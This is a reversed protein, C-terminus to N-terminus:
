LYEVLRIYYFCMFISMVLCYLALIYNGNVYLAYCICLKPFFGSMPPIGAASFISLILFVCLPKNVRVLTYFDSLNDLELDKYLNSVLYLLISLLTLNIIYIIFLFLIGTFGVLTNLSFALLIFGTNAVSSLVLMRKVSTQYLAYVSGIFISLIGIVKLFTYVIEIM